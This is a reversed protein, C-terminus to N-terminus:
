GDGARLTAMCLEGAMHQADVASGADLLGNGLVLALHERRGAHTGQLAKVEVEVVVVHFLCGTHGDHRLGV